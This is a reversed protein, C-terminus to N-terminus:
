LALIVEDLEEVRIAQQFESQKVAPKWSNLAISTCLVRSDLGKPKSDQYDQFLVVVFSNVPKWTPVPKSTGNSSLSAILRCHIWSNDLVIVKKKMLM